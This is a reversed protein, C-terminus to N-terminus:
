KSGLKTLLTEPDTYALHIANAISFVVQPDEIWESETWGVIETGNFQISIYDESFHISM